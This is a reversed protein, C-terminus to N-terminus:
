TRFWDGVRSLKIVVNDNKSLLILLWRAYLAPATLVYFLAMKLKNAFRFDENAKQSADVIARVLIAAPLWFLFVVILTILM